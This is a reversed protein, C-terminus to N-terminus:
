ANIMGAFVIESAIADIAIAKKLSMEVLISQLFMPNKTTQYTTWAVDEQVVSLFTVFQLIVISVAAWAYLIAYQSM